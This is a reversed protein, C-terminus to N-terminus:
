FIMSEHDPSPLSPPLAVEREFYSELLQCSLDLLDSIDPRALTCRAITTLRQAIAESIAAKRPSPGWQSIVELRYGQFRVDPEALSPGNQNHM